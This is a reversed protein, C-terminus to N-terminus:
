YLANVNHQLNNMFRPARAVRGLQGGGRNNDEEDDEDSSAVGEIVNDVDVQEERNGQQWSWYIGIM